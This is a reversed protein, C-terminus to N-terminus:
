ISDFDIPELNGFVEDLSDHHSSSVCCPLEEKNTFVVGLEEETTVTSNLKVQFFSGITVDNSLEEVENPGYLYLLDCNKHPNEYDRLGILVFRGLEVNNDKRNKGKFRSSLSLMLDLGDMTKVNFRGNGNVKLVVAYKEFENTSKQISFHSSKQQNKRAINKHHGGTTNKVM